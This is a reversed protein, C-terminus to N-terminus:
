EGKPPNTTNPPAPNITNVAEDADTSRRDLPLNFYSGAKERLVMEFMHILRSGMHGAMGAAAAIINEDLKFYTCIYYVLLGAFASTAFEGVVELLSFRREKALRYRQLLNVFGGLSAFTIIFLYTYWPYESPDKDFM